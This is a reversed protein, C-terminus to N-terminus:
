DSKMIYKVEAMKQSFRTMERLVETEIHEYGVILMIRGIGGSGMYKQDQAKRAKMKYMQVTM